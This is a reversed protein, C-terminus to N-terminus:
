VSIFQHGRQCCGRGGVSAEKGNDFVSLLSWAGTGLWGKSSGPSSLLAVKRVGSVDKSLPAGLPVEECLVQQVGQGTEKSSSRGVSLVTCKDGDSM